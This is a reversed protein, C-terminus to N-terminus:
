KENIAGKYFKVTKEITDDLSFKKEISKRAQSRLESAFESDSILRRIAGALAHSDNPAVLLGNKTDEIVDSIGGVSTAVCARSSAMAELLSLGLGEQLSPLVYIDMLPFFRRADFRSKMFVVSKELDLSQVLRRLAEEEPGDGIILLNTDPAYEKIEKVAHVLHNYGKVPSLRGVAGIILGEKFGLNKRITEKEEQSLDVPYEGVDVGNYIVSVSEESIKFDGVLHGKVADSIAIVKKGWCSFLKRSFRDYKFFGHCTSVFPVGTFKSVVCGVIQAVRTHAHIVDMKNKRVFKILKIIAIVLKPHFEFKTRLNVTLLPINAGHFYSELDGGSSAIFCKVKKKALGKALDLTYRAVGGINIHTTILLVKM